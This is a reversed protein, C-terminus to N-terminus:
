FSQLNRFTFDQNHYLHRFFGHQESLLKLALMLGHILVLFVYM